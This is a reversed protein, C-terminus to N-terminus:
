SGLLKAKAAQFESESLVGSQQLQQLQQLQTILEPRMAPAAATAAQLPNAQPQQAQLAALQAQTASLQAKLQGIEAQAQEMTTQAMQQQGMQQQKSMAAQDMSGSVGKSVATATGVVAATRLLSPGGRRRFM